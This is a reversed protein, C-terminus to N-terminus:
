LSRDSPGVGGITTKHWKNITGSVPSRVLTRDVTDKRGKLSQELAELKNKTDNHSEMSERQFTDKIEATKGELENIERQIKLLDLKSIVKSRVLPATMALEERALSLSRQIVSLQKDIERLKKSFLDKERAVLNPRNQTIYDPFTIEEAGQAEAQFRALAAILSDRQAIQEEYSATTLTADLRALIDGKNVFQGEGVYREALIGGELNQITQISSSPIVKGQGKTVEDIEAFSAWISLSAITFVSGWLLLSLGFIRPKRLADHAGIAFDIEEESVAQSWMKQESTTM